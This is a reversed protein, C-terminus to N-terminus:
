VDSPIQVDGGRFRYVCVYLCCAEGFGHVNLERAPELEDRQQVVAVLEPDRAVSGAQKWRRWALSPL